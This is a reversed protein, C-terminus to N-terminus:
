GIVKVTVTKSFIVLKAGLVVVIKLIETIVKWLTYNLAINIFIANSEFCFFAIEFVTAIPCYQM